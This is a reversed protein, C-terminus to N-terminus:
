RTVRYATVSGPKMNPVYLRDGALMVDNAYTPGARSDVLTRAEGDPAIDYIRGPWETALYHGDGAAALGDGDGLGRTLVTIARSRYDMRLLLGGMTIVTLRDPEAYLGNVGDLEPAEAWVQMHGDQLAYIRKTASDSVLVTGDPAVVTDNLFKAGPAPYRQLIRGSGADLEVLQDIDAAYLRSGKLIVGKPGDLGDAWHAQLMRGDPSIRSIFGNGDKADPEGNVNSVYLFSGDAGMAVSEPDSLGNLTWLKELGLQPTAAGISLVAFALACAVKWM